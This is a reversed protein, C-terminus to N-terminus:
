STTHHERSFLSPRRESYLLSLIRIVRTVRANTLRADYQSLFIFGSVM